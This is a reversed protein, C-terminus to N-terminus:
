AAQQDTLLRLHRREADRTPEDYAWGDLAADLVRCHEAALTPSTPNAVTYHARAAPKVHRRIDTRPADGFTGTPLEEAMLREFPTM